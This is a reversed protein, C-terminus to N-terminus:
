CTTKPNAVVADVERGTFRARSRVLALGSATAGEERGEPQELSEVGAWVQWPLDGVACMDDFAMKEKYTDLCAWFGEHRMTYLRDQAMLRGFPQEVLEEGDGIHDFIERDLVFFGGNLWVDKDSISAFEHVRGDGDTQVTHFSQTPRVSLFTAVARREHHLDIMKPLPVDSLGDTYNALFTEDDGIHEEVAKLRQGISANLGTEAFTITWDGPDDHKRRTGSPATCGSSREVDDLVYNDADSFYHQIHPGHWGLCLVFETHGYYAYYRMLHWLIPRQGIRAMPKPITESYERLRLGFGGCFLVVKM